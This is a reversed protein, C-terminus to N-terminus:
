DVKENKSDTTTVKHFGITKSNHDQDDEFFDPHLWFVKNPLFLSRIRTELYANEKASYQILCTDLPLEAPNYGQEIYKISSIKGSVKGRVLHLLLDPKRDYAKWIEDVAEMSYLQATLFCLALVIKNQM